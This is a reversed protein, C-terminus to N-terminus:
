PQPAACSSYVGLNSLVSLEDEGAYTELYLGYESPEVHYFRAAGDGTVRFIEGARSLLWIEQDGSEVHSGILRCDQLLEVADEEYLRNMGDGVRGSYKDASADIKFDVTLEEVVSLWGPVSAGDNKLNYAV